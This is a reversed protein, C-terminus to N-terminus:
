HESVMHNGFVRHPTIGKLPTSAQRESPTMTVSKGARSKAITMEVLLVEGRFLSGDPRKLPSLNLAVFHRRSERSYQASWQQGIRELLVYRGASSL